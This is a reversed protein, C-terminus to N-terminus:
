KKKLSERWEKFERTLIEGNRLRKNDEGPLEMLSFTRSGPDYSLRYSKSEDKKDVNEVIWDLVAGYWKLANTCNIKNKNNQTIPNDKIMIPIEDTNYPEVSRLIFNDDRFGYVVKRVGMLFSQCWTKFLKKEFNVVQGNHEIIRSTKLEVYHDLVTKTKEPIYDWVCDIEGALILKVNGIGTKIVSLYQEYNNVIKKNRNDIQPRPTQAWPHPITALTEFKYGSFECKKIHEVKDPPNNNILEEEQRKMRNLEIIKDQAIFLQGDFPVINLDIPDTLFYPMSIIKTMIGRFTIIDGDLKKQTSQEHHQIGQLLKDFDALNLEPDIKKFHSYGASLDLKAQKYDIDANALYYYPIHEQKVKTEDFIYENDIDRAYVFIERPQKLATTKARATLPLTKMM